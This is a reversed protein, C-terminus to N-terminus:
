SESGLQRRMVLHPFDELPLILLLDGDSLLHTDLAAIWTQHTYRRFQASQLVLYPSPSHINPNYHPM